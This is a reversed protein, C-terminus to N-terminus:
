ERFAGPAAGGLAHLFIQGRSVQAVALAGGRREHDRQPGLDDVVRLHGRVLGAPGNDRIYLPLHRFPLPCILPPFDSVRIDFGSLIVFSSIRLSWGFVPRPSSPSM